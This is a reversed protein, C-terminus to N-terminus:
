GAMSTTTLQDAYGKKMFNTALAKKSIAKTVQDEYKVNIAGLFYRDCDIPDKFDESEVGDTNASGPKKEAWFHRSYARRSNECWPAVYWSPQNHVNFPLQLDFNMMQQLKIRQTEIRDAPPVKWGTIGWRALESMYDPYQAVFRPDPIRAIIKAGFEGFDCAKIIAALQEMSLKFQRSHRIEDFYVCGMYKVSPFENYVVVHNEPTVAYWKIFPYYKPSPDIAMYCNCKELYGGGIDIKKVHRADAPYSDDYMPYIKGSKNSAKGELRSEREDLPITAVYNNIEESSWLGKKTGLHNPKGNDKDNQWISGSVRKVKAGKEELDDLIDLFIGCNIPTAGIIWLGQMLRSMVAGMLTPKPPEDSIVLSLTKGEYEERSQEYTMMDGLWGTDTSIQSYYSKGNKDLNYRGRPWSKKLEIMLSGNDAVATPTGTIRFSKEPYPWKKFVSDGNWWAFWKEDCPWMINKAIEMITRSKGTRNADLAVVIKFKGCGVAYILDEQLGTPEYPAKSEEAMKAVTERFQEKIISRIKLATSNHYAM